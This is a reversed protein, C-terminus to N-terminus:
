TSSLIMTYGEPEEPFSAADDSTCPIGLKKALPPYTALSGGLLEMGKATLMLKADTGENALMTKGRVITSNIGKVFSEFLVHCSRVIHKAAEESADKAAPNDGDDDECVVAPTYALAFLTGEVVGAARDVRHPTRPVVEYAHMHERYHQWQAKRKRTGETQEDDPTIPRANDDDSEQRDSGSSSDTPYSVKPQSGEGWCGADDEDNALFMAAREHANERAAHQKYQFKLWFM